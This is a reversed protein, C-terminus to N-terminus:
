LAFGHRDLVRSPGDVLWAATAGLAQRDGASVIHVYLRVALLAALVTAVDGVLFDTMTDTNSKQLDSYAVWDRIFEVIEWILGFLMGAFITMLAALEDTLDVRLLDRWGLLFLGFVLSACLTDVAHV